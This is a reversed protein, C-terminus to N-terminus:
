NKIQLSRKRIRQIKMKKKKKKKKEEKENENPKEEIKEEKEQDEKIKKPLDFVVRMYDELDADPKVIGAGTVTALANALKGYDVDGLKNFKLKPYSQKENLTFNLDVLEKILNRNLTESLQKALASLSLLFLDSQDESLAYSGGKGESGLELFQALINKSIQANHHIISEEMKSTTGAKLDAFEFKWDESPLIVYTQETSRLNEAILEAEQVNKDSDGGKPMTIVPIGISQREHKVADLKYLTDKIYWHKYSSRLVSTGQYNDGEQRYTFRILKSNPISPMSTGNAEPTPLTQQVWPLGEATLWKQVSWPLRQALKKIIIKDGEFKYVKEFLSFWFPLMTLAQRLFDDFTHDMKDFICKEIFNAILYDEDTTIYEGDKQETSGPEIGWLTARIPLEMALLTAFVQADSKRMEDYKKLGQTWALQHNYEESIFGGLKKTGSAGFENMLIDKTEPDVVKKAATM